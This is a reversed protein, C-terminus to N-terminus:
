DKGKETERKIEDGNIPRRLVTNSNNEVRYANPQIAYMQNYFVVKDEQM